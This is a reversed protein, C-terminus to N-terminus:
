NLGKNWCEQIEIFTKRLQELEQPRTEEWVHVYENYTGDMIITSVVDIVQEWTKQRPDIDKMVSKLTQIAIAIRFRENM